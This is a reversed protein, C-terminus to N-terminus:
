KAERVTLDTRRAAVSVFPVLGARRIETLASHSVGAGELHLERAGCALGMAFAACSAALKTPAKAVLHQFRERKALAADALATDVIWYGDFHM